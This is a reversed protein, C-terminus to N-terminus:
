RFRVKELMRYLFIYFEQPLERRVEAASPMCAPIDVIGAEDYGFDVVRKQALLM